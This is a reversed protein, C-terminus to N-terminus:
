KKLLLGLANKFIEKNQSKQLTEIDEIIEDQHIKNVMAEAKKDINQRM